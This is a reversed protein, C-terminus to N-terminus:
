QEREEVAALAKRLWETDKIIDLNNDVAYLLWRAAKIAETIREVGPAPSALLKAIEEARKIGDECDPCLCSRMAPMVSNLSDLEEQLYNRLGANAAHAEFVEGRIKGLYEVVDDTTEAGPINILIQKVEAKLREIEAELEQAYRITDPWGDWAEEVFRSDPHNPDLPMLLDKKADRNSIHIKGGIEITAFIIPRLRYQGTLYYQDGFKQWRVPGKTRAECLALDAKLDRKDSM